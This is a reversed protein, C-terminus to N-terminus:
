LKPLSVGGSNIWLIKQGKSFQGKKDLDYLGYLLKGNYVRDIAIGTDEIFKQVFQLYDSNFKAYGGLSYQDSFYFKSKEINSFKTIEDIMWDGKLASFVLLKTGIQHLQIGKLIGAATCGTGAAVAIYDFSHGSAVLEDVLESVGKLALENSGGEPIVIANEYSAIIHQISPANMKKRYAERDVFHLIMGCLKCFDLVENEVEEGRIIGVSKLDYAHCLAALAHIHNSYAGGFSIVASAKMMDPLNYKLKRYKNGKILPHILDERKVFLDVSLGHGIVKEIPSPLNLNLKHV